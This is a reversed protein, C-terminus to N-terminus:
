HTLLSCLQTRSQSVFHQFPVFLLLQQFSMDKPASADQLEAGKIVHQERHVPMGTAYKTNKIMCM